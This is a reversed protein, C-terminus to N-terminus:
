YVANMSKFVPAEDVRWSPVDCDALWFPTAMVGSWAGVARNVCVMVPAVTVKSPEEDEDGTPLM